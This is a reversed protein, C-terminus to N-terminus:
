AKWWRQRLIFKKKVFDTHEVNTEQTQKMYLPAIICSTHMCQCQYNDYLCVVPNFNSQNVLQIDTDSIIIIINIIIIYLIQIAGISYELASSYDLITFMIVYLSVFVIRYYVNSSILLM